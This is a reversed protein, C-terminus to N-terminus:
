YSVKQQRRIELAAGVGQAKLVAAIVAVPTEDHQQSLRLLVDHLTKLCHSQLQTLGKTDKWYVVKGKGSSKMLGAPPSLGLKTAVAAALTWSKSAATVRARLKLSGTTGFHHVIDKPRTSKLGVWISLEKTAVKSLDQLM